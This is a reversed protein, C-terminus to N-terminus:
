NTFNLVNILAFTRVCNWMVNMESGDVRYRSELTECDMSSHILHAVFFVM